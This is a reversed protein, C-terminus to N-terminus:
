ILPIYESVYKSNIKEGNITDLIDNYVDHPEDGDKIYIKIPNNFGRLFICIISDNEGTDTIDVIKSVHIIYNQIQIYEVM